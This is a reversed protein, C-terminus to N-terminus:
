AELSGLPGSGQLKLGTVVPCSGTWSMPASSQPDLSPVLPPLHPCVAPVVYMIQQTSCCVSYQYKVEELGCLDVRQTTEVTERRNAERALVDVVKPLLEVALGRCIVKVKIKRGLFFTLPDGKDM